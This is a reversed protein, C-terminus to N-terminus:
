KTRVHATKGSTNQRYALEIETRFTGWDVGWNGGVVFGTKWSTDVSQQSTGIYTYHSGHYVTRSSGKLGPNQLNNVGGFISAYTSAADAASATAVFAVVATSILLAKRTQM